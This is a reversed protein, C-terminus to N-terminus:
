FRRKDDAAKLLPDVVRKVSVAVDRANKEGSWLPVMERMTAADIEQWNTTQPDLRIFPQGDVYVKLNKPPLGTGLYEKSNSLSKRASLGLANRVLEIGVAESSLVHKLLAWSEEPYKTAAAIGQGLGGGTTAYRGNRGRPLHTADWTFSQIETRYSAVQPPGAEVMAIRGLQFTAGQETQPVWVQYRGRLDQLFQLAEVAAPETLVCETADKNVFEGGNSYVWASWMRFGTGSAFGFHTVGNRERTLKQSADLFREFTWSQDTFNTPPHAFSREDFLSANYMLGRAPFDWPMAWQKNQWSYYALAKDVFDATDYRDRRILPTLDLLFSRRAYQLFLVSMFSFVDPPTGGAIMAQLKDATGTNDLSAKIGPHKEEFLRLVETKREVQAQSGSQLLTLTMGTKLATAPGGGERACASLAAGAAASGGYQGLRGLVWRRTFVSGTTVMRVKTHGDREVARILEIGVGQRPSGGRASRPTASAM